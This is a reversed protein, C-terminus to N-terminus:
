ESTEGSVAGIEFVRKNGRRGRLGFGVMGDSSRDSGM